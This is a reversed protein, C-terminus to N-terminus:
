ALAAAASAAAIAAVLAVSLQLPTTVLVALVTPVHLAVIV